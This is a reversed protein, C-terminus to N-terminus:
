SEYMGRMLGTLRIALIMFVSIVLASISLVAAALGYERFPSGFAWYYGYALMFRDYLQIFNWLFAVLFFQFGGRDHGLRLHAAAQHAPSNDAYVCGM